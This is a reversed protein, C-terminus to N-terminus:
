GDVQLQLMQNVKKLIELIVVIVSKFLGSTTRYGNEAHM